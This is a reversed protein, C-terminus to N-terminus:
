TAIGESLRSRQAKGSTASPDGDCSQVSRGTCVTSLRIFM